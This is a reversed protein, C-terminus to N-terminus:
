EIALMAKAEALMDLGEQENGAKCLEAAQKAIDKAQAKQDAAIETTELAKTVKKVEDECPGAFAATASILLVALAPAIKM